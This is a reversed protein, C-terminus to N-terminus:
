LGLIKNAEIVGQNWWDTSLEPTMLYLEDTLNSLPYIIRLPINQELCYEKIITEDNLSIKDPMMNLLKQNIKLINKPTWLIDQKEIEDPRSFIVDIETAGLNLAHLGSVHEMIGGDCYYFDGIKIPETAIPISSSAVVWKLATEYDVKSVDCYDLQELNYNVAGVIVIKGSNQLQIHDDPTYYIKLLSHLNYKGISPKGLLIRFLGIISIKGKKNMPKVSFFDDTTSNIIAEKLVNYKNIPLLLNVISGASIGTYIDYDNHQNMISGAGALFSIKTSGGSLSLAKM